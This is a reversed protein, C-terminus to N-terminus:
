TRAGSRPQLMRLVTEPSVPARNVHVGLADSLASAVAPLPGNMGVEGVGKLGFPGSHEITEVALSRTDPLDMSAPILYTSLDKTLLRGESTELGEMLAFGLGQAVGGEIQQHYNQPNLVRGGDTAALYDCVRVLGTLEDVEVRVLHAAYAFILHPFGLAFEKGTDPVERTVPMLYESVCIRDERPLMSALAELPLDRGTPLHRVAGPVLAFGDPEDVMLMLAARRVLKSTMMECAQILAKGFTYTTRGASASGSPHSSDTDPQAVELREARQCLMEGAIQAFTAANGQGMDPVASRILFRGQETLEIRAIANDPLGRGYGMGNFVAALGVGRRTFAPAADKWAKRGTWLESDRLTRLCEDLGTSTTLSVGAGNRDGRHLANQRRLELPDRGLKRALRDMMGEFAFSAQAVGFGRFAGGIPNNTYVCWGRCDVHEVNYPGAAHEMGLEMIEGGLHAYAGTDFWLRCDLARLAGDADAGLRYRMRAAHRKYGALFNEERDWCMKITRGPLRLAALALLCQVTAGDKGGFGGGLFPSVVHVTWPSLGLAHAVEFRDRFPAQSSVTLHLIGNEDLRATGNETELFAHAQAPTHFTEELVVACDKLASEADGKNIRAALLVNSGHAEHVLPADQALAADLDAIVPLPEIRPQILDLARRLIERSGAVVLAVPDGAHRIRSGCLVPMDKHVIGQRNSGPVDARTLVAHVGPLRRAADVDLERLEGHPIGARKAGAWLTDPPFLDAAFREEGTAKSLADLRASSTGIEYPANRM